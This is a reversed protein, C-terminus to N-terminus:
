DGAQILHVDRQPFPITLGDADFQEKLKRTMDFKVPWYDGGDCWLRLVLNVSSDALEAIGIFPEPNAHIRPEDEIVKRCTNMAATIDDGYAISM